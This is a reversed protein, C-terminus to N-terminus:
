QAAGAASGELGFPLPILDIGKMGVQTDSTLAVLTLRRARARLRALAEMIDPTVVASIVVLSAGYDLLPTEQMLFREFPTPLLYTLGALAELLRPLHDPARSPAFRFPRGARAVSGNSVLGVRYGQEYAAYVYSAATEVLQDLRAKDVGMWAQAFTAANLFIFLDLGAVPQVTRSQLQGSRATAPWHIRRFGDEPRYDRVGAPQNPDEYLRREARRVGFPDQPRIGLQGLRHVKPFVVIKEQRRVPMERQFLGFADGSSVVAPGILYVGRKELLLDFSRRVRERARLALVLHLNGFGTLPSPALVDKQLPAVPAPWRDLIRLWALPLRKRNELRLECSIVEGPFGKGLRLRRGYTVGELSFRSWLWGLGIGILTLSAILLLIPLDAVYGVAFLLLSIRLWGRGTV